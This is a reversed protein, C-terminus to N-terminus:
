RMVRHVICDGDNMYIKLLTVGKGVPLLMEDSFDSRKIMVGNLNYLEVESINKGIIQVNEGLIHVLTKDESSKIGTSPGATRATAVDNILFEDFYYTNANVDESMRFNITKINNLSPSSFSSLDIVYDAWESSQLPTISQSFFEGGVNEIIATVNQGAPNYMMFHLYMNPSAVGVFGDIYLRLSHWTEAGAPRDYKLVKSTENLLDATLPNAVVTAAAGSTQTSVSVINQALDNEFDGINSPTRVLGIPDKSDSLVFQDYQYQQAAATWAVNNVLWIKGIKKGAVGPLSNDSATLDLVIEEWTNTTMNSFRKQYILNDADDKVQLESEALFDRRSLFHLYKHNTSLPEITYTSKTEFRTKYWWDTGGAFNSNMCKASNNITTTVPNDYETNLVGGDISYAFPTSSGSECSILLESDWATKVVSPTNNDTIAFQDFYFVAGPTPGGYNLDPAIWIQSIENGQIGINSGSASIDIIIEVWVGQEAINFQGQYIRGSAATYLGIECSSTYPIQRMAWFRLYKHNSSNSTITIGTKCNMYMEYWWQPSGATYKLAYDSTNGTKLPNAAVEVTAADASFVFPTNSEDELSAFLVSNILGNSNGFAAFFPMLLICATLFINKKM